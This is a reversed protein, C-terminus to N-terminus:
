ASLTNKIIKNFFHRYNHGALYFAVNVCLRLRKKFFFFLSFDNVDRITQDPYTGTTLPENLRQQSSVKSLLFETQSWVESRIIIRERERERVRETCEKERNERERNERWVKETREREIYRERKHPCSVIKFLVVGWLM